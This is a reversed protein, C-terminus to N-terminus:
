ITFDNESKIEVAKEFVNKMVRMVLGVMVALLAAFLFVFRWLGLVVLAAGALMCAWSILRLCRTNQPIFVKGSNINSLLIHLAALASLAFALCVYIVICMPVTVSGSLLRERCLYRQVVVLHITCLFGCRGCACDCCRDTDKFPIIIKNKDM